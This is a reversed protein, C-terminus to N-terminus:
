QCRGAARQWRSEAKEGNRRRGTDGQEAEQGSGGAQQEKGRRETEGYRRKETEGHRGARGGAQQGSGGAKQKKETEGDGRTARSQRRGEVKEGGGRGGGM